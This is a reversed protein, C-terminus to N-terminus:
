VNIIEGKVYAIFAEYNPEKSDKLDRIMRELKELLSRKDLGYLDTIISFVFLMTSVQDVPQKDQLISLVDYSRSMVLKPDRLLIKLNLDNTLDSTINKRIYM